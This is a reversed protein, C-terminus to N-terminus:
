DHGPRTTRLRTLATMEGIALQHVAHDTGLLRGSIEILRALELSASEFHGTLAPVGAVAIRVSLTSLDDPDYWANLDNLLATAWQSAATRDGLLLLCQVVDSRVRWTADDRTDLHEVMAAHLPRLVQLADAPQRLNKLLHGIEAHSMLTSRNYPGLVRTRDDRLSILQPLADVLRGERQLCFNIYHRTNLSSAHDRGLCSETEALCSKLEVLAQELDASNGFPIRCWAGDRLAQLRLRSCRGEIFEAVDAIQRLLPGAVLYDHTIGHYIDALPVATDLWAQPDTSPDLESLATTLRAVVLAVSGRGNGLNETLAQAHIVIETLAPDAKAGEAVEAALRGASVEYGCDSLAVALDLLMSLRAASPGGRSSRLGAVVSWFLDRGEDEGLRLLSIAADVRARQSVDTPGTRQALILMATERESASTLRELHLLELRARELRVDTESCTASVLRAVWLASEVDGFARLLAVSPLLMDVHDSNPELAGSAVGHLIPQLLAISEVPGVNATGLLEKAQDVAAAIAQKRDAESLSTSAAESAATARGASALHVVAGDRRIWGTEVAETIDAEVDITIAARVLQNEHAHGGLVSLLGAIAPATREHEM